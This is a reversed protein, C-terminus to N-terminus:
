ACEIAAGTQGPVRPDEMQRLIVNGAEAMAPGVEDAALEGTFGKQAASGWAGQWEQLAYFPYLHRNDCMDMNQGLVQMNEPPPAHAAAYDQYTHRNNPAHGRDSSVREAYYQGGLFLVLKTAQEVVGLRDSSRTVLYPQDNWGHGAKGTRPAKPSPMLSWTFRDRIRAAAYGTAYVGGPAFGVLGASFPDGFEGALTKSVDRAYAVKEKHISNVAWAMAEVAPAEDFPTHTLDDSVYKDLGNSYCLPLYAFESSTPPNLGFQSGDDKTLRRANDLVDDWTWDATPAAVGNSEALTVNYYWGSVGPQFSLGFMDGYIRDPAPFRHDWDNDTYLDPLFYIADFDVRFKEAHQQAVDTITVFAGDPQFNSFVFQNGLLVEPAVGSALLIPQEGGPRHVVKVGINPELEAFKEIGWQTAAGRPGSTHDTSYNITVFAQQPMAEMAATAAPAPEATAPAETVPAPAPEAPEGEGCAALVLAGAAGGGALALLRRRNIQKTSFM